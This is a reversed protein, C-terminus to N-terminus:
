QKELKSWIIIRISFDFIGKDGEIDRVFLFMNTLKLSM